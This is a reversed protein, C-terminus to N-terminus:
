IIRKETDQDVYMIKAPDVSLTLPEGIGFQRNETTLLKWIRTGIKVALITHSGQPEIIEVQTEAFSDGADLGINEPRIAVIIKKGLYRGAITERVAAAIRVKFDPARWRKLSTM